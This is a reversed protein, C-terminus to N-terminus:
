RVILRVGVGYVIQLSQTGNGNDVVQTQWAKASRPLGTISPATVLTYAGIGRHPLADPVTVRSGAAFTLAGSVTLTEDAAAADVEFGGAAVAGAITGGGSKLNPVTWAGAYGDGFTVSAGARVQVNTFVPLEADAATVPFKVSGGTVVLNSSGVLSEYLLMGTGAKTLRTRWAGRTVGGATTCSVAGTASFYAEPLDYYDTQSAFRVRGNYNTLAAGAAPLAGNCGLTLIDCKLYVGGTFDNTGYLGIHEYQWNESSGIGGPGTVKGYYEQVAWKNQYNLKHGGANLVVEGYWKSTGSGCYFGATGEMVMRWPKASDQTYSNTRYMAGTRFYVTNFSTGFKFTPNSMNGEWLIERGIALNGRGTTDYYGQQLYAWGGAYDVTFTHGELYISGAYRSHQSSSGKADATLYVVSPHGSATNGTLPRVYIAGAGDTGTGAIYVPKSGFSVTTGAVAWTTELTAGSKVYVKGSAAPGLPNAVSTIVRGGDIHVDGTFGALATTSVKLSGAGTKVILKDGTIETVSNATMWDALDTTGSAIDITITDAAAYLKRGDDDVQAGATVTGGGTVSLFTDSVSDYFTPTGDKVCPILECKLTTGDWHRYGHITTDVGAEARGPVTLTEATTFALGTDGGSQRVGNVLLQEYCAVSLVTGASYAGTAAESSARGYRYYLKGDGSHILMFAGDAKTQTGFPVAGLAGTFRVWAYPHTGPNLGTDFYSGKPITLSEV